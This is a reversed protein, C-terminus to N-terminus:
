GSVAGPADNEFRRRYRFVTLVLVPTGVVTPGVWRVVSPLMTLNVTVAATVTAIYAGGMFVIHRYFWEWPDDAPRRVSHVERVALVLGIGGFVVLASGLEDGALLDRGGLGVMALGFGVMTLHAIWDVPEGGDPEPGKRALVRFGAFVLYGSFVAITFLFYNADVLSLPIATTVVVAMAVAYGRGARVHRPGGKSTVLAACGATLAVIGAAVHVGLTVGLITEFM